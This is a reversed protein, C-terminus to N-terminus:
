DAAILRDLVEVYGGGAKRYRGDPAPEIGGVVGEVAPDSAELGRGHFTGLQDDVLLERDDPAVDPDGAVARPRARSLTRLPWVVRDASELSM